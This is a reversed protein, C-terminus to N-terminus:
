QRLGNVRQGALGETTRAHQALLHLLEPATIPQSYYHGQAVDCGYSALVAATATTEVGEAVTTLGLTHSLDIVSRVIAAARPDETVSSIFSRDLKVEDIPLERLYYMSSYGSGFDDIAIRIGLGRLGDLMVRARDLNDLMFDETIEVALMSATLGHRKLADDLRAPLDLDALTPPFLNVAVPVRHGAAHWVAADDLARQVVLETISHMLSHRRALPLFHEPALLGLEAHHWRVLAEVGVIAGSRLSVKPQYHVALDGHDIAQRLEALLQMGARTAVRGDADPTYVLYRSQSRKARYMAIDAHRLLSGVDRGHEPCLAIGISAGTQVNLGGLEVTEDLATILAAAAQMARGAGVHPLLLAFEDGGLRALIDDERLPGSLRAAVRRLLEDGAAHGLSDNVDKFHDLDLLLLACSVQEDAGGRPLFREVRHYFARRNLLATLDDTHALHAHEATHRAEWFAAALRGLAALLTAVALFTAAPTISTYRAAVLVSIAALAALLPVGLPLWTAPIRAIGPRQHWGPAVAVVTVAIVWAADLLGGPQYTGRAAQIVYTSDVVGFVILGGALWWLAAPPRWRFLAMSGVILALLLLDGVPYVLNVATQTASGGLYAMLKPMVVAAAVTAAGLGVVVGDLTLSSPLRDVRSRILLVLAVYVCPYFVFWLVDCLSPIPIPDMPRIFWMYYTNALAFSALGAAVIRWAVRDPSSAPVRILCLAVTAGYALNQMIGDMWWSYGQHARVGPVTTVVFAAIFALLAVQVIQHRGTPRRDWGREGRFGAPEPPPAVPPPQDVEVVAHDGDTAPECLSTEVIEPPPDAFDHRNGVVTSAAHHMNATFMHVGGTGSRKASYMAIDAQKLLTDASTKVNAASQDALGVSPRITLRYGDVLFPADFAEVVRRPILQAPDSGDELLICFEDGGLRAVTDGSRTCGLLREAVQALLADGARHGLTDNVEKFNDLDLSLVAVWRPERQRLTVAHSLRDLLLTRNALGTLPDRLAQDAVTDLLRRNEAVVFFQRILVAAVLLMGVAIVLGSEQEPLVHAAGVLMALVLPAYPMWLRAPGPMSTADSDTHRPRTSVLAAAGLVLFAGMWGLDILNGSNYSGTSNLYVFASDSLAMLAVGGTLLGLTLRRATGTSAVALVAVTILVVDIVPYALSLAFAFWNTAGARYVSGLVTVWSLVFLSGAVILGDLLLLTRSPATQRSPLLMLALGAGVPFLLFGADAASPFPVQDQGRWLQYYSSIAEGVAWCGLGAALGIWGARVRGRARRAAAGACVAAYLPFYVLGLDDVFRTVSPGGWQWVLWGTFVVASGIGFTAALFVNRRSVPLM